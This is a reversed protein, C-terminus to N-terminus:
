QVRRRFFSILTFKVFDIGGNEALNNQSSTESKLSLSSSTNRGDPNTWPSFTEISFRSFIMIGVTCIHFNLCLLIIKEFECLLSALLLAWNM